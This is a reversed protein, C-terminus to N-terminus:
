KARTANENYDNFFEYLVTSLAALRNAVPCERGCVAVVCCLRMTFANFFEV